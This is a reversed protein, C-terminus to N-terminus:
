FAYAIKGRIRDNGEYQGIPGTGTATSFLDTGVGFLWARQKSRFSLDLSMLNSADALDFTWNVGYTLQSQGEWSAGVKWAQTYPFRSPLTLPIEDERIPPKNENINLYSTSVRFGNDWGYEGGGAVILAPGMPDYMWNPPTSKALPAEQSASGWLSWHKTKYGTEATLVHHHLVRPHITANLVKSRPSLGAEVAIDITNMPMIGYILGAQLGDKAGYRVSAAAGPHLVLDSVPPMAIKYNINVTQQAFSMQHYPPIHDPSESTLQGNEQRIPFGREPAHFGTAFGLIRWKASEYSYFAGTLGIQQPRLPDWLFRPSWLGLNWANDAVSWDYLRRGLTIQHHPMLRRSTSVYANTAEVTFSSRDSTFAIAEAELEARFIKGDAELDPGLAITSSSNGRDSARKLFGASDLRVFGAAQAAGSVFLLCALACVGRGCGHPVVKLHGM